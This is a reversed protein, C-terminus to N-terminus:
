EHVVEQGEEAEETDAGETEAPEEIAADDTVNGSRGGDTTSCIATLCAGVTARNEGAAHEEWEEATEEEEAV